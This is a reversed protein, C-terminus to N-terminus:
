KLQLQSLGDLNERLSEKADLEPRHDLIGIPGQYGHDIVVQIMRQEHEGKGIELIKPQADSNMGNINLCLLYPMMLSFSRAWDNIHDHGHHFNYVIGTHSYGLKRLRKVVAVMNKPEGVWGGHNYIGLKCGMAKTRLVLPLLQAVADDTKEADSDGNPESLMRWIQPHLDYKEFLSFAEEHEGWFAFFDIGHERYQIIEQEFSPVHESRWDYACRQIGLDSLMRARQAPGRKQSDFPVICWAVLNEKRLVHSAKISTAKDSVVQVAPAPGAPVQGHIHPLDLLPLGFALLIPAILNSAYCCHFLRM